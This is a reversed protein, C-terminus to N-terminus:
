ESGGKKIKTTSATETAVVLSGEAVLRLYYASDPVEVAAKDDIYQRPKGEKPCRTGSKSQVLM